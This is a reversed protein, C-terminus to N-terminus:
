KSLNAIQEPSLPWSFVRARAVAGKFFNNGVGGSAIDSGVCFAQVVSDSPYTLVGTIERSAVEKGDIYLRLVQGDYSAFANVFQGSELPASIIQYKGNISAWFELEKKRGNIEFAVGRGETCAFVNCAANPFEDVRFTAAFTARRMKGYDRSNFKIKLYEDVGNFTAAMAGALAADEAIKPAGFTEIEKQVKRANKALNVPKGDVFAVDLMNAGPAPADKDLPAYPDSPTTFEIELAKESESFWPNLAVIKARYTTDAPLSDLDITMTKPQDNFYYESWFHLPAADEWEEEKFQLDVRYSHVVDPCTAQPFTLRAYGEDELLGCTVKADDPWVPRANKVIREDTYLYSDVDGPQAVYYVVDFFSDTILDYPKLAVSNDKRVEVVFMQAARRYGDPFKEYRGGESGMEFYSLTGTGFATFQGQWASRPDNIPYHSHGSFNVVRPYRQLTEFLDKTGWNDEGRSGYVTPTVHYHQCTFIPKDPSDAVAEDLAKKYWDFAYLFDGDRSTGREPSLAVFTFGNIKYVKNSDREFIEEWRKKAGSIFEHNGMCLITETGPKIGEDMVKKFLLLEEDAGYDTLDGAVLMADFNQYKQEASYDYMFSMSRRFRDVEATNPSTKFHVDSLASFRLVVDNKAEDARAEFEKFLGAPLCLVTAGLFSRAIFNRRTVLNGTHQSRV